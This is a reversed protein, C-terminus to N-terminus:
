AGERRLRATAEADVAGDDTVAVVYAERAAAASVFGERVDAAVREPDRERPPGYGGGPRRACCCRTAACWGCTPSSPTASRARRRPSPRSAIPGGAGSCSPRRRARGRRRVPGPRSARATASRASWSRTPEVTMVRTTALGGRHSAAGGTDPMLRYCEPQSVPLAGRLGRGPHQPLQLAPHDRTTATGRRAAAPATGEFHYNTYYEGTERTSGGFLFNSSSGGRGGRGARARGPQLGQAAPRDTRSSIPTAASAPGPISSTSASGAPAIFKIPRYCGSNRPITTHPDTISFVANYVASARRGRHLEDTGAQRRRSGTFDAIITAGRDRDDVRVEFPDARSGTTRSPMSASYEGDPLEAIEARLRRESYDM